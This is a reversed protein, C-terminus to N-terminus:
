VFTVLTSSSPSHLCKRSTVTNADDAFGTSQIFIWIRTLYGYQLYDLWPYKPFIHCFCKGKQPMWAFVLFLQFAEVWSFLPVEYGLAFMSQKYWIQNPGHWSQYLAWHLRLVQSQVDMIATYCAASPVNLFYKWVM